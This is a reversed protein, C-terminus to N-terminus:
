LKGKTSPVSKVRPDVTTAWDLAKALSKFTAEILHHPYEGSVFDVHLTIGMNAAFSEWFHKADALTYDKANKKARLAPNDVWKTKANTHFHFSGRDSIDISVRSGALAEDLPARFDGFRRIGKKDGLALKFAQGLAIGVDENTHHNDIHLDGKAKVEIDFLGHKALTELMHDLFGVGTDAKGRGGGDLNLKIQIDTEKTKRKVIAKRDRM